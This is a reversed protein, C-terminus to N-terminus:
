AVGGQARFPSRLWGPPAVDPTAAMASPHPLSTMTLKEPAGAEVPGVPSASRRRACESRM